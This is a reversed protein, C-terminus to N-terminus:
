PQEASPTMAPAMGNRKWQTYSGVVSPTGYRSKRINWPVPRSNANKDCLRVFGTVTPAAIREVKRWPPGEGLAALGYEVIM